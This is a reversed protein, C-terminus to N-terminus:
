EGNDKEEKPEPWTHINNKCEQSLVSRKESCIRFIRMEVEEERM